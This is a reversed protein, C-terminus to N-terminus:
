PRHSSNLRTSKRDRGAGVSLSAGRGDLEDAIAEASYRATGKDLVRAALAATGTAGDPDASAGANVGIALSVAPILRNRAAIITLGNALVRRVPALAM